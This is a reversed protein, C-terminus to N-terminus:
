ANDQMRDRRRITTRAESDCAVLTSLEGGRSGLSLFWRGATFSSRPGSTAEFGAPRLKSGYMRERVLDMTTRNLCNLWSYLSASSIQM